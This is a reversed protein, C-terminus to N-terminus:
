KVNQTRRSFYFLITSEKFLIQKVAKNWNWKLQVPVMLRRSCAARPSVIILSCSMLKVFVMLGIPKTLNIEVIMSLSRRCCCPQCYPPQWPAFACRDVNLSKALMRWDNARCNPPDLLVCLQRKIHFPLRRVCVCVCVCVVCDTHIINCDSVSLKNTSLSARHISHLLWSKRPYIVTWV